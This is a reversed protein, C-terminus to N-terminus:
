DDPTPLIGVVILRVPVNAKDRVFYAQVYVKNKHMQDLLMKQLSAKLDSPISFSVVPNVVNQLRIRGWGSEKNYQVIDCLIPTIENDVKAAEIEQAMERNLYLVSQRRENDPAVIRLTSASRRLAIAMESVLPASMSILKQERAGDIKAIEARRLELRDHRDIEAVRREVADRAVTSLEDLAGRDALENVVADAEAFTDVYGADESGVKRSSRVADIIKSEDGKEVIRESIYSLMDAMSLDAFKKEEPEPEPSSVNINYSGDKQSELLVGYNSKNTIKKVFSGTTRFQALKVMLRAAAYQFRAAEYFDM